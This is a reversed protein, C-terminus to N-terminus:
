NGQAWEAAAAEARRLAEIAEARQQDLERLEETTAGRQWAQRRELFVARVLDQAAHVARIPEPERTM